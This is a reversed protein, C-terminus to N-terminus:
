KRGYDKIHILRLSIYKNRFEIRQFLVLTSVYM